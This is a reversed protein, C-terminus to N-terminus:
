AIRKKTKNDFWLVVPYRYGPVRYYAMTVDNNTQYFSRADFSVLQGRTTKKLVSGPRWLMSWPRTEATFGGNRDIVNITAPPPTVFLAQELGKLAELVQHKRFGEAPHITDGRKHLSRNGPAGLTRFERGQLALLLDEAAGPEGAYTAVDVLVHAAEQDGERALKLLTRARELADAKSPPDRRRRRKSLLRRTPM